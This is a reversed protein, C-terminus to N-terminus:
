NQAVTHFASICKPVVDSPYLLSVLLVKQLFICHVICQDTVSHM